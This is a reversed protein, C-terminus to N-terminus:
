TMKKMNMDSRGEVVNQLPCNTCLIHGNWKATRKVKHLINWEVKVRQLVEAYKVHDASNIELGRQCWM